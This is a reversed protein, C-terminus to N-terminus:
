HHYTCLGAGVSCDFWRNNPCDAQHIAICSLESCSRDSCCLAFHLIPGHHILFLHLLNSPTIWHVVLSHSHLSFLSRLEASLFHLFTLPCYCRSRQSHSAFLHSGDDMKYEFMTSSESVRRPLLVIFGHMASFPWACGSSGTCDVKTCACLETTSVFFYAFHFWVRRCLTRTAPLVILGLSTKLQVM